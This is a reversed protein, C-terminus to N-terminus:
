SSGLRIIKLRTPLFLQTHGPGGKFAVPSAHIQTGSTGRQVTDTGILVALLRWRGEVSSIIWSERSRPLSYTTWFGTHETGSRWSGIPFNLKCIVCPFLNM